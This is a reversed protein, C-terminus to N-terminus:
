RVSVTIGNRVALTATRQGRPDHRLYLTHTGDSDGATWHGTRDDSL